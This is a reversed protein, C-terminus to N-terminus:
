VSWDVILWGHQGALKRLKPSPNVAIPVDAWDLVPADSVHDSYFRVTCDPRHLGQAEMWAEIKVLKAPGYCNEGDIRAHIRGDPLSFSDTAIVDEMGLQEAIATVYIRYSATAMVLRHGSERDAAMQRLAGPYINKAITERAFSEVLPALESSRIHRGMMLAQMWEKLTSRSILKLAYVAMALPILPAFALRWPARRLAVHLLFSSYTGRRTITRDMDYIALATM